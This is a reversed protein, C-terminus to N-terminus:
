RSLQKRERKRGNISSSRGCYGFGVVVFRDIFTVALALLQVGLNRGVRSLM